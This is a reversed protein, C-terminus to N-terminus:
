NCSLNSFEALNHLYYGCGTSWVPNYIIHSVETNYCQSDTSFWGKCSNQCCVSTQNVAPFKEVNLTIYCLTHIFLTHFAISVPNLIPHSTNSMKYQSSSNLHYKYKFCLQQNRLLEAQKWLIMWRMEVIGYCCPLKFDAYIVFKISKKMM